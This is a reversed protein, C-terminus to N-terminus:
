PVHCGTVDSQQKPGDDEHVTGCHRKGAWTKTDPERVTQQGRLARGREARCGNNVPVEGRGTAGMGLREISMATQLTRDFDPRRGSCACQSSLILRVLVCVRVLVAGTSDVLRDVKEEESFDESALRRMSLRMLVTVLGEYSHPNDHLVEEPGGIGDHVRVLLTRQGGAEATFM